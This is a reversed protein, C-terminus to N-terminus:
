HEEWYGTSNGADDTGTEIFRKKPGSDLPIAAIDEWRRKNLWTAPYPIFQGGDRKWEYSACQSSLAALMASLLPEDPNLKEFASQADKKSVKKPYNDWFESFRMHVIEKDEKLEKNTHKQTTKTDNKHRKEKQQNQFFDYNVITLVTKKTDKEIKLMSASQLSNLFDCIKTNSWGWRDQLKRISTIRQGRMVLVNHKQSYKDEHNALLLLDIWAQGRTFPKDDWLYDNDCIQRHILVWGNNM